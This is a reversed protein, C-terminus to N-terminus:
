VIGDALTEYADAAIEAYPVIEPAVDLQRAATAFSHLLETADGKAIFGASVMMQLIGGIQIRGMMADFVEPRTITAM